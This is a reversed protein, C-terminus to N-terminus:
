HILPLVSNGGCKELGGEVCLFLAPLIRLPQVPELFVSVFHNDDTADLRPSDFDIEAIRLGSAGPAQDPSCDAVCDVGRHLSGSSVGRSRVSAVPSPNGLPRTCPVSAAPIEPSRVPPSEAHSRQGARFRGFAGSTIRGSRRSLKLM